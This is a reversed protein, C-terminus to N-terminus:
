LRWLSCIEVIRTCINVYLWSCVFIRTYACGLVISRTGSQLQTGFGGPTCIRHGQLHFAPRHEPGLPVSQGACSRRCPESLGDSTYWPRKPHCLHQRLFPKSRPGIKHMYESSVLHTSRTANSASYIPRTIDFPSAKSLAVSLRVRVMYSCSLDLEPRHSSVSKVRIM